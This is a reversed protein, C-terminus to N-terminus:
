VSDSGNEAEEPLEEQLKDIKNTIANIRKEIGKNKEEFDKLTVDDGIVECEFAYITNTYHEEELQRVRNSLGTIQEQPSIRTYEM